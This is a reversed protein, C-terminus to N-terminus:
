RALWLAVSNRESIGAMNFTGGAYVKDGSAFPILDMVLHCM